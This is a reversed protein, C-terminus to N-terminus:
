PVKMPRSSSSAEFTAPQWSRQKESDVTGALHQGHQPAQHERGGTAGCPLGEDRLGAVLCVTGFGDLTLHSGAREEARHGQWTKNRHLLRIVLASFSPQNTTFCGRQFIHFDPPIIIGLIHFTM